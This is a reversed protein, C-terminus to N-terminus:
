SRANWAEDFEHRRVTNPMGPLGTPFQAAYEDPLVIAAAPMQKPTRRAAESQSFFTVRGLRKEAESRTDILKGTEVQVKRGTLLNFADDASLGNYEDRALEVRLVDMQHKHM